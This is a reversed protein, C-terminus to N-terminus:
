TCEIVAASITLATNGGIGYLITPNLGDAVGKVFFRLTKGANEPKQLISQVEAAANATLRIVSTSSQTTIV